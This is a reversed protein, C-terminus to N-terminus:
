SNECAEGEKKEALSKRRIDNFGFFAILMFRITNVIILGYTIGWLGFFYVFPVVVLAFICAYIINIILQYKEAIFRLVVVMLSGSIFYLVQGANALLFFPKATAYVDPYMIGVFIHSVFWGGLVFVAGVGLAVAIVVGFFRANFKGKYKALYGIIVGNLPTTLLAIIKGVLTAVYFVTVEESGVMANLLIKDSQLVLANILATMSMVTMSRINEGFHESKSLVGSGKFISGKLVVYIFCLAEGALVAFIWSKIVFYLLIGAAYGISIFLYFLFFGKYNVNLRYEVDGYYRLISFVTLLAFGAIYLVSQKGVIFLVSAVSIIASLASTVALYINYDGNCNDYNKIKAVMRSYNAGSGFTTALISVVALLTLVDGFAAEGMRKELVPYMIFQLVGNMCVLGGVSYILDGALSKSLKKGEGM